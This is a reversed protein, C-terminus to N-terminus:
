IRHVFNLKRMGFRYCFRLNWNRAFNELFKCYLLVLLTLSRAAYVAYLHFALGFIRVLYFHESIRVDLIFPRLLLVGLVDATGKVAPVLDWVYFSILSTFYVFLWGLTWWIEKRIEAFPHYNVIVVGLNWRSMFDALYKGDDFITALNWVSTYATLM